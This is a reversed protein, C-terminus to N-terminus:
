IRAAAARCIAAFEDAKLSAGGVLAGDIDAMGMLSDANGGNVSGGYLIRMGEALGADKEALVARITEHVEQAQEPTASQGTGIAWVPEYAIIGSGFSKVGVRDFVAEVQSGVVQMTDGAQRQELTEGVCLVPIVGGELCAAFKDAVVTDTEGFVQRRESHGVLSYGCGCDRIMSVAVEGTFAGSDRWDVNQSGLHIGSGELLGHVTELYVFPPLVLVECDFPGAGVLGNVLAEISARSGNMKWNGAVLPKREGAV